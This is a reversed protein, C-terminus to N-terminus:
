RVLGMARAVAFDARAKDEEGQEHYVYGRLLYALPNTTKLRIAETFDAV